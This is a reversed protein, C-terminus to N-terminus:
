TIIYFIYSVFITTGHKEYKLFNLAGVRVCSKFVITRPESGTPHAIIQALDPDADFTYDQIRMLTCGKIRMWM